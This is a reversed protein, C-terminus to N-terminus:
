TKKKNTKKNSQRDIFYNVIKFINDSIATLHTSTHELKEKILKLVNDVLEIKQKISSVIKHADRFMMIFYYIAWCIFITFFGLSIGAILWFIDQTTNLM